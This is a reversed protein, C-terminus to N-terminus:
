ADNICIGPREKTMDTRDTVAPVGKRWLKSLIYVVLRTVFIFAPPPAPTNTKSSTYEYNFLCSDCLSFSRLLLRDDQGNLGGGWGGM